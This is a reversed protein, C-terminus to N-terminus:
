YKPDLKKLYDDTLLSFFVQKEGTHASEMFSTAAALFDTDTSPYEQYCDIDIMSGPDGQKLNAVPARLAIKIDTMVQLQLKYGDCPLVTKFFTSEGSLLEKEVQIALTLDNLINHRFFNVYHLGFRHATKVVGSTKLLKLTETFAVSLDQWGPYEGVMGVAFVNPGIMAALGEGELRFQPQYLLAPNLLRMQEPLNVTQLQIQNPFKGKLANYVLGYVAGAPVSADFRVEFTADVIPCPSIKNPIPSRRFIGIAPM